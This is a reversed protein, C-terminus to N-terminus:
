SLFDPSAQQLHSFWTGIGVSSQFMQKAEKSQFECMIWDGGMYKLEINEFGEKDLAEKLNSLSAIDKVKGLLFNSYDRQNVCTSDLVLAPKSEMETHMSQSGKVVNVYSSSNGKVGRNKADVGAKSRRNPIYSNVVTGYQKCTNWLDKANFQHPFNTVFVSTSIKHVDEEKSHDGM